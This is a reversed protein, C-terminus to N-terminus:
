RIALLCRLRFCWCCGVVVFLGLLCYYVWFVVVGAAGIWSCYLCGGFVAGFFVSFCGVVLWERLCFLWGFCWVLFAFCSVFGFM